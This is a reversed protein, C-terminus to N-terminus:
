YSAPTFVDIDRDRWLYVASVARTIDSNLLASSLESNALKNLPPNRKEYFNLPQM